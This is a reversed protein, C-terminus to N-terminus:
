VIYELILPVTDIKRVVTILPYKGKEEWETDLWGKGESMHNWGAAKLTHQGLVFLLNMM